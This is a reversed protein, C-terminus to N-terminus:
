SGLRKGFGTLAGGFRGGRKANRPGGRGSNEDIEMLEAHDLDLGGGSAADGAGRKGAVKLGRDTTVDHGLAKEIKAEHDREVKRREAARARIETVQGEIEALVGDCRGNWEALISVLQPVSNPKLDRLPSVSSVDVRKAQPDLKATILGAYISSIVLDELARTSPLDLASLLYQYTLTAHSSSLSLLSLQRLKLSQSESIKPLSPTATGKILVQAQHYHHQVIRM